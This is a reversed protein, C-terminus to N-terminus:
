RTPRSGALDSDIRFPGPGMVWYRARGDQFESREAPRQGSLTTTGLGLAPVSLEVQVTMPVNVRLEFKGQEQRWEVAIDGRVTPFTGRAWALDAPQPAVRFAAFGPATPEVGLVHASLDFNPACSWAHSLSAYGSLHEWWTTAGAALM